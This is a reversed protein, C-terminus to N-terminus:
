RCEGVAALEADPNLEIKSAEEQDTEYNNRSIRESDTAWLERSRLTRLFARLEPSPKVGKIDPYNPFIAHLLAASEEVTFNEDSM